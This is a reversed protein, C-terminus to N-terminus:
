ISSSTDAQILDAFAERQLPTLSKLIRFAAEQRVGEEMSIKGNGMEKDTQQKLYAFTDQGAAQGAIFAQKNDITSFFLHTTGSLQKVMERKEMPTMEQYLNVAKEPMSLLASKIEPTKCVNEWVSESVGYPNGAASGPVVNGQPPQVYTTSSSAMQFSEGSDPLPLEKIHLNTYDQGATVSSVSQVSSVTKTQTQVTQPVAVGSVPQELHPIPLEQIPSPISSLPKKVAAALNADSKPLPNPHVNQPADASDSSTQSPMQASGPLPLEKIPKVPSYDPLLATKAPTPLPLEHIGDAVLKPPAQLALLRCKENLANFQHHLENLKKLNGSQVAKGIEEAIKMRQENARSYSGSVLIGNSTKSAAEEPESEGEHYVMRPDFPPVVSVQESPLSETNVGTKQISHTSDIM